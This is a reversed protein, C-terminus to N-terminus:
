KNDRRELGEMRRRTANLNLADPGLDAATLNKWQWDQKAPAQATKKAVKAMKTGKNVAPNTAVPAIISERGKPYTAQHRKQTTQTPVIGVPAAPHTTLDQLDSERDKGYIHKPNEVNVDQDARILSPKTREQSVKHFSPRVTILFGLM